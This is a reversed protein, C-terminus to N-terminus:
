WFSDPSSRGASCASFMMLLASRRLSVLEVCLMAVVYTAM